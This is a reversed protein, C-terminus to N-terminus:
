DNDINWVKQLKADANDILILIEKVESLHKQSLINQAFLSSLQGLLVILLVIRTKCWIPYFLNCIM